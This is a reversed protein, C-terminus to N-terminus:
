IESKLVIIQFLVMTNQNMMVIATYIGGGDIKFVLAVITKETSVETDLDIIKMVPVM